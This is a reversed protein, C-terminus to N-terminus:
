LVHQATTPVRVARSRSREQHHSWASTGIDIACVCRYLGVALRSISRWSGSVLAYAVRPSARGEKIRGTHDYGTSGGSPALFHDGRPSGHPFHHAPGPRLLVATPRVGFIASPGCSSIALDATSAILNRHAARRDRRGLSPRARCGPAAVSCWQRTRCRARRGFVAASRPAPAHRRLAARTHSRLAAASLPPPARHGLAAASRQRLAAISRPPPARHGLTAASRSPRARRRLTAISRPPPARHGLTAASRPPPARHGLVAASRPPPARRRLVAVSHRAYARSVAIWDPGRPTRRWPRPEDPPGVPRPCPAAM